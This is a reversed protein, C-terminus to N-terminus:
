LGRAWCNQMWDKYVLHKQVASCVLAHWNKLFISKEIYYKFFTTITCVKISLISKPDNWSSKPVYIQCKVKVFSNSFHVITFYHFKVKKKNKALNHTKKIIKFGMYWNTKDLRNKQYGYQCVKHCKIDSPMHWLIDFFAM